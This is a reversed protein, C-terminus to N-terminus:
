YMCKPCLLLWGESPCKSSKNILYPVSYLCSISSSRRPTGLSSFPTSSYERYGMLLQPGDNNAHIMIPSLHHALGLPLGKTCHMIVVQPILFTRVSLYRMITGLPCETLHSFHCCACRVCTGTRAMSDEWPWGNEKAERVSQWKNEVV